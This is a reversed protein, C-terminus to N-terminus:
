REAEEPEPAPGAKSRLSLAAAACALALVGPAGWLLWTRADMPPRFLVFDGYREKFYARIEADSAGAAVRARVLRRMDGAIEATSQSIPENKCAVCRIEQDLKQARAELAPDALPAFAAAALIAIWSM